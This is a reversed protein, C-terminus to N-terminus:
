LNLLREVNNALWQDPDGTRAKAVGYPMEHLFTSYLKEYLEQSINEGDVFKRVEVLEQQTFM